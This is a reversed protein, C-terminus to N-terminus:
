RLQVGSVRLRGGSGVRGSLMSEGEPSIHGKVTQEEVPQFFYFYCKLEHM